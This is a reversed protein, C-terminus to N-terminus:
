YTTNDDASFCFEVENQKWDFGAYVAVVEILYM